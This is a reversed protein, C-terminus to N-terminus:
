NADFSGDPHVATVTVTKGNKLNVKQGVAVAAAPRTAAQGLNTYLNNLVEHHMAPGTATALGRRANEFQQAQENTRQAVSDLLDSYQKRLSDPFLQSSATFKNLQEQFEQWRTQGGLMQEFQERAGSGGGIQGTAISMLKAEAAKDGIPTHQALDDHAGQIQQQTALVPQALRSVEANARAFSGEDIRQQAQQVAMEKFPISTVAATALTNERQAIRDSVDKIAAEVGKTGLGLALANQAGNVAQRYQQPYKSQDIQGGVMGGLAEPTLNQLADLQKQLIATEVEAKGAEARSQAGKGAADETQAQKEKLAAVEDLHAKLAATGGLAQNFQDETAFNQPVKTVDMGAARIFPRLHQIVNPMQANIAGLDLTGDPKKLLALSDLSKAIEGTGESALDLQSKTQTLTSNVRALRHQELADITPEAVQGQIDSYDGTALRAAKEPDRYAEMVANQDAIQRQRIAAQQQIDQTQAQRLAIESGQARAQMLASISQLPSAPQPTQVALPITAISGM